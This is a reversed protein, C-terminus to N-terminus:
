EDNKKPKILKIKKQIKNNKDTEPGAEELVVEGVEKQERMKQLAVEEQVFRRIDHSMSTQIEDKMARLSPEIEKLLKATVNEKVKAIDKKLSAFKQANLEENELSRKEINDVKNSITDMKCNTGKVDSKIEQLEAMIKKMMKAVPDEITEVPTKKCTRKFKGKDKSVDKLNRQLLYKEQLDIKAKMEKMSVNSKPSPPEKRKKPNTKESSSDEDQNIKSLSVSRGINLKSNEPEGM